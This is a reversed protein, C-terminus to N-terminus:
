LIDAVDKFESEFKSILEYLSKITRSYSENNKRNLWIGRMNIKECALTDAEINDGIYFCETPHVKAIKCAQIFIEPNPKSIGIDGSVMVVQFYESIGLKKLKQRQQVSDGNTIIGLRQDKLSELSPIVDDFLRWSDEYHNIYYQFYNIAQDQDIETRAKSFL